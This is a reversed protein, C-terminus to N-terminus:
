KQLLRKKVAQLSKGGFLLWSGLAVRMAIVIIGLWFRVLDGRYSGHIKAILQNLINPLLNLTGILVFIGTVSFAMSVLINPAITPANTAPDPTVKSNPKIPKASLWLIGSFLFLLVAPVFSLIWVTQNNPAQIGTQMWAIPLQLADLALIFACISLIKLSLEGIESKNM